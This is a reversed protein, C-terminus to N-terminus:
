VESWDVQVAPHLTGDAIARAATGPDMTILVETLAAVLGDRRQVTAAYLEKEIEIAAEVQAALDKAEREQQEAERQRAALEEALRREAEEQALRAAEVQALAQAERAAIAERETRAQEEAALRQRETEAERALRDAEVAERQLQAIRDAEERAAKEARLAELEMREAEQAALTDHLIQLRELAEACRNAGAESFEELTTPDITGLEALRASADLATEVGETLAAIRDLVARHAEIRAEEKAEIAKIATEHPEILGQVAAELLKASEDVAKGRELHVAKADKRAREIKGKLQRLEYVWSRAQKNDWQDDYDFVKGPAKGEAIAIDCAIAEWRSIAQAEAAPVIAAQPTTTAETAAPAEAPLVEATVAPPAATAAKATKARTKTTTATM